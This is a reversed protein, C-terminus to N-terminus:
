QQFHKATRFPNTTTTKRAINTNNYNTASRPYNYFCCGGVNSQSVAIRVFRASATSTFCQQQQKMDIDIAQNVAFAQYGTKLHRTPPVTTNRVDRGTNNGGNSIQLAVAVIFTPDQNNNNSNNNTTTNNSSNTNEFVCEKTDSVCGSCLYCYCCCGCGCYCHCCCVAVIAAVVITAVVVAVAVVVVVAMGSPVALIILILVLLLLM